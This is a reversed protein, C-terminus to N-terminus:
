GCDYSYNTIKIIQGKNNSEKEQLLNQGVDYIKETITSLIGYSYIRIEKEATGQYQYEQRFTEEGKKSNGWKKELLGDKYQYNVTMTAHKNYSFSEKIINGRNDYTYDIRQLLATTPEYREWWIKRETDDFFVTEETQVTNNASLTVTTEKNGERIKRKITQVSGQQSFQKSEFGSATFSTNNTIFGSSTSSESIKNGNADYIIDVSYTLKDQEYTDIRTEKNSDSFKTIVVTEVPKGGFDVVTKKQIKNGNKDYLFSVIGLKKGSAGITAIEKPLCNQAFVNGVVLLLLLTNKM